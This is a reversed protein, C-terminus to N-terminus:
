NTKNSIFWNDITVEVELNNVIEEVIEDVLSKVENQNKCLILKKTFYESLKFLSEINERENSYNINLYKEIDDYFYEYFNTPKKNLVKELM